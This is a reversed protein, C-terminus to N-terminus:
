LRSSTGSKCRKTCMACLVVWNDSWQSVWPSPAWGPTVLINLGPEPTTAAAKSAGLRFRCFWAWSRCDELPTVALSPTSNHTNVRAGGRPALARSASPRRTGGWQGWSPQIRASGVRTHSPTPQSPSARRRLHTHTDTGTTSRAPTSEGAHRGAEGHGGDKGDRGVGCSRFVRHVVSLDKGQEEGYQGEGSLTLLTCARCANM